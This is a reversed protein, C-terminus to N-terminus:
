DGSSPNLQTGDQLWHEVSTYRPCDAHEYLGNRDILIPILGASRAGGVDAGYENGVYLIRDTKLSLSLEAAALEFIAPDPKEVGATQSAVIAAFAQRIGLKETLSPLNSDWNAVLALPLDHLKQHALAQPVEAFLEWHKETAFQSSLAPQLKTFQSSIGLAEALQQNYHHYFSGRDRVHVSSYKNHFDVIQYARKVAELKLQLGVSDAARLFLEERAPSLTALTDGFDFFVAKVESM